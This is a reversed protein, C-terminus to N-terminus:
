KKGRMSAGCHPCYNTRTDNYSYCSSCFFQNLGPARHELDTDRIWQGRKGLKVEPVDAILEAFLERWSDRDGEFSDALADVVAGRKVLDDRGKGIRSVNVDIPEVKSLTDAIQREAYGAGIIRDNKANAEETWREKIEQEYRELYKPTGTINYRKAM